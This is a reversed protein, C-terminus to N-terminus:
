LLLEALEVWRAVAMLEAATANQKIRNAKSSIVQVNGRVYGLEPRVRDLTPSSARAGTKGSVNREIRVGLVPCFEPICIDGHELDFPMRAKKARHKASLYMQHEARRKTETKM